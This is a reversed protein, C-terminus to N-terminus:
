LVLRQKAKGALKCVAFSLESFTTVKHEVSLM